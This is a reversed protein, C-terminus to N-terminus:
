AVEVYLRVDIAKKQGPFALTASAFDKLGLLTSYRGVIAVRDNATLHFASKVKIGLTKYMKTTDKSDTAMVADSLDEAAGAKTKVILTFSKAM